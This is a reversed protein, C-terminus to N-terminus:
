YGKLHAPKVQLVGPQRLTGPPTGFASRSLATGPAYLLQAHLLVWVSVAKYTGHSHSTEGANLGRRTPLRFM